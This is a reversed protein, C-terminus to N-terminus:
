GGSGGKRDVFGGVHLAFLLNPLTALAGLFGMEAASANLALVATLPLAITSVQDGLYSVTQATWFRRFTVQHLLRPVRDLLQTAM